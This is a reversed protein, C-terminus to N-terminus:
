LYHAAEGALGAPNLKAFIKQLVLIDNRASEGDSPSPTDNVISDHFAVLEEQFAEEYSVIVRKTYEAGDEM